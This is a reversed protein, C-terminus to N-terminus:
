RSGQIPGTGLCEADRETKASSRGALWCSPASATRLHVFSRNEISGCRIGTARPYGPEVGARHYRNSPPGPEVRAWPRRPVRGEM